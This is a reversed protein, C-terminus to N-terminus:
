KRLSIITDRHNNKFDSGVVEDVDLGIRYYYDILDKDLTGWYYMLEITPANFKKITGKFEVIDKISKTSELWTYVNSTFVLDYNERRLTYPLSIIGENYFIPLRRNKLISQLRYYEDNNFYPILLGKEKYVNVINNFEILKSIYSHNRYIRDLYSSIEMPMYEKIKMFYKYNALRYNVFYDLFEEYSLIQISYFKLVFYYWAFPNVDYLEIDKAGFLLSAFYHDGSSLISLVKANNFDYLNKYSSINENTFSYVKSM